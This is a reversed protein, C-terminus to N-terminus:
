FLMNGYIYMHVEGDDDESFVLSFFTSVYDTCSTGDDTMAQSFEM